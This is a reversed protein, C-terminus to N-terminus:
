VVEYAELFSPNKAFLFGGPIRRSVLQFWPLVYVHLSHSRRGAAGPTRFNDLAVCRAFCNTQGGRIPNFSWIPQLM